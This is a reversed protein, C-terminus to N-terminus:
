AGPGAPGRIEFLVHAGTMELLRSLQGPLPGALEMRRSNRLRILLNLFASDAFSVKAVDIVLLTAAAAEGECATRLVGVTDFDFEGSCDVVYAGDEQPRVTVRAPAGDQPRGGGTM